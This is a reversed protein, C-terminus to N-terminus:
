DVWHVWHIIGLLSTPTEQHGLRYFGDEEKWAIGFYANLCLFFKSRTWCILKLVSGMINRITERVGGELVNWVWFFLPYSHSGQWTRRSATAVQTLMALDEQTFPSDTHTKGLGGPHLPWRHPGQWSMCPVTPDTTHLVMNLKDCVSACEASTFHLAGFGWGGWRDWWWKLMESPFFSILFGLVLDHWLPSRNIDSWKHQLRQLPGSPRLVSFDWLAQPIKLEPLSSIVRVLYTVPGTTETWQWWDTVLQTQRNCSWPM